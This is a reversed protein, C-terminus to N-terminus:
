RRMSYMGDAAKGTGDIKKLIRSRRATRCDQPTDRVLVPHESLTVPHISKDHDTDLILRRM